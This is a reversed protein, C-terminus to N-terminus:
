EIEEIQTCLQQIEQLYDSFFKDTNISKIKVQEHAILFATKINQLQTQYSKQMADILPEHLSPIALDKLFLLGKLVPKLSLVSQTILDKLRSDSPNFAMYNSTILLFKSKLEREIQLRIWQKDFSLPQIYDKDNGSYLTIYDNQINLFELPYSDLSSSIFDPSMFFPVPVRNKKLFNISSQAKKINQLDNSQCIVLIDDTHPDKDNYLVIQLLSSGLDEKLLQCLKERVKNNICETM